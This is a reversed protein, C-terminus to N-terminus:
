KTQACAAMATSLGLGGTPNDRMAQQVCSQIREQRKRAEEAVQQPNPAAPAPATPTQPPPAASTPAPPAAGRRGGPTQASPAEVTGSAGITFRIRTDFMVGPRNANSAYPVTFVVENSKLDAWKGCPRCNERDINIEDTTFAIQVTDPRNQIPDFRRGTGIIRGKLMAASHAGLVEKGGVILPQDLMAPVVTGFAELREVGAGDWSGQIRLEIVTGAPIPLPPRPAIAIDPPAFFTPPLESMTRVPPAAMIAQVEAPGVFLRDAPCVGWAHQAQPDKHYRWATMFDIEQKCMATLMDHKHM